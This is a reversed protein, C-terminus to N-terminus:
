FIKKGGGAARLQSFPSPVVRASLSYHPFKCHLLFISSQHALDQVHAAADTQAFVLLVVLLGFAKKCFGVFWWLHHKFEEINAECLTGGQRLVGECYIEFNISLLYKKRVVTQEFQALSLEPEFSAFLYHHSHLSLM